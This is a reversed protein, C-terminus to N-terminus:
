RAQRTAEIAEGLLLNYREVRRLKEKDLTREYGERAIEFIKECEQTKGKLCSNIGTEPDEFLITIDNRWYSREDRVWVEIGKFQGVYSSLYNGNHLVRRNWNEINEVIKLGEEYTLSKKEM